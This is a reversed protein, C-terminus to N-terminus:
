FIIAHLPSCKMIRTRDYIGNVSALISAKLLRASRPHKDRIGSGSKKGMGSGPDRNESGPNLFRLLSLPSFLKTTMGNKTVVFKVFNYIIKNKFHELFFNPGTKL